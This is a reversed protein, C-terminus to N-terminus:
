APSACRLWGISRSPLLRGGGAELSLSDNEISRIRGSITEGSVFTVTVNRGVGLRQVSARAEAATSAAPAPDDQGSRGTSQAPLVAPQVIFLTVLVSALWTRM